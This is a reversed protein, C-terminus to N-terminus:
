SPRPCISRPRQLCANIPELGRFEDGSITHWSFPTGAPAPFQNMAPTIQQGAYQHQNPHPPIGPTTPQPQNYGQQMGGFAQQTAAPQDLNHYAHRNKKKQPRNTAAADDGLGMSGMQSSLGGMGGDNNGAAQGHPPFYGQEQSAAAQGQYGSYPTGGYQNPQGNPPAQGYPQPTADPQYPSPAVPPRWQPGLQAEHPPGNVSTNPPPNGPQGYSKYGSM